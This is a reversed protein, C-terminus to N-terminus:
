NVQTWVEHELNCIKATSTKHVMQKNIFQKFTKYGRVNATNLVNNDIHRMRAAHRDEFFKLKDNRLEDLMSDDFFVGYKNQAWVDKVKLDEKQSKLYELYKAYDNDQTISPHWIYGPFNIGVRMYREICAVPDHVINIIPANPFYERIEIPLSHTCYPIYIDDPIKHGGALEFANEFTTNYYHDKDDVFDKVYDFPPPLMLGNPMLRNYHYGSVKRQGISSTERGSINWPRIGNDPHSYWYINPLSALARALRHGRAAQEFSIFLINSKDLAKM